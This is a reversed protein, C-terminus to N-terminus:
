DNENKWDELTQMLYDIGEDSGLLEKKDLVFKVFFNNEGDKNKFVSGFQLKGAKEYCRMFSKGFIITEGKENEWYKEDSKKDKM